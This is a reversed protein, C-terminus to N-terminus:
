KVYSEELEDRANKILDKISNLVYNYKTNDTKDYIVVLKNKINNFVDDDKLEESLKIEHDDCYLLLVNANEKILKSSLVSIDKEKWNNDELVKCKNEKTYLINNNEPFEKDFHKREIYKPITHIGARLIKLLEEKTIHDLRENGFNNIVINNQINNQNQINNIIQTEIINQPNPERAYIVSRAKCNNAKIHRSKHKRSTFSIMCKPCTLIDIGKCTLIHNDLYKKTKYLKNCKNCFLDPYASNEQHLPVNGKNLPVNGKNLSVNEINKNLQEKSEKIGHVNDLHRTYNYKRDSFYNCHSCMFVRKFNQSM